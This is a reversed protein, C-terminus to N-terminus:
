LSPISSLETNNLYCSPTTLRDSSKELDEGEKHDLDFELIPLSTWAKLMEKSVSSTTVADELPLLFLIHHWLAEPLCSIKDYNDIKITSIAGHPIRSSMTAKNPNKLIPLSTWAKLMAKSVSSTRIADELPLFFLINHWITEHLCSIKDSNDIMIASNAGHPIRSSM